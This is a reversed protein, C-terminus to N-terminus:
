VTIPKRQHIGTADFLATLRIKMVMVLERCINIVRIQEVVRIGPTMQLINVM